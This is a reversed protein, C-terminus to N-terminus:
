RIGLIMLGSRRDLAVNQIGKMNPFVTTQPSEYYGEPKEQHPDYWAHGFACVWVRGMAYSYAYDTTRSDEWPWPWGQEPLTGAEEEKLYEQVAARYSDASPAHLIDSPIGSPYGDYGISGLWEATEGRGIYFDARTGM